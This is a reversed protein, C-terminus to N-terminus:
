PTQEAGVTVTINQQSTDPTSTPAQFQFWLDVYSAPAVNVGNDFLSIDGFVYETATSPSGALITDEVNFLSTGPSDTSDCFLGWIVYTDVGATIGPLWSSGGLTIDLTFTENVSGTNTVTIDDDETSQTIEGAALIGIAWTNPNVSVGLVSPSSMFNPTPYSGGAITSMWQNIATYNGQTFALIYEAQDTGLASSTNYRIRLAEKGTEYWCGVDQFSVPSANPFYIWSIVNNDVPDNDTSDDYIAAYRQQGTLSSFNTWAGQALSNVLDDSGNGIHYRDDEVSSGLSGSIPSFIDLIDDINTDFGFLNYALYDVDETKMQISLDFTTTISAEHYVTDSIEVNTDTSDEIVTWPSGPDSGSIDDEFDETLLQTAGSYIDIDDVYCLPDFHDRDSPGSTWLGTDMEIRSIDTLPDLFSVGTAKPDTMDDIYIDMTDSGCDFVVKFHYWQDPTYTMITNQSGDFYGISGSLFYIDPGVTGSSNELMIDLSDEDTQDRSRAWFELTGSSATAFDARMGCGIANYRTRTDDDDFMCSKGGETEKTVDTKMGLGASSSNEGEPLSFSYFKIDRMDTTTPEGGGQTDDDSIEAFNYSVDTDKQHLYLLSKNTDTRGDYVAVLHKNELVYDDNEDENYDFRYSSVGTQPYLHFYKRINLSPDAVNIDVSYVDPTGGTSDWTNRYYGGGVDTLGITTVPTEDSLKLAATVTAGTVPSGDSVVYAEIYVTDTEGFFVEENSYGSDEYIKGTLNDEYNPTFVLSYGQPAYPVNNGYVEITWNGSIIGTNVVVQEVNNTHDEQTQVASNSPNASDLTWPYYRVSDPDTVVLDLDNVLTPDAGETAPEDDWVLTVKVETTGGPVYLTYTDTAGNGLDDELLSKARLKDISDQIQINGYGYSYDPGTSGLDNAEHILLAKVSSPLPDVASYLSRYDQIILSACGSVAPAAMSTGYWGPGGYEDNPLTSKIYGEGGAEDGPAVVDPKIRGDDMPGWSSFVTMSDDDSNIAGVCIINKATSPPGICDYDGPIDDRENGAAFVVSIRKGYFFGTVIDDYEPADYGYYGYLSSSVGYGWSNQSLEIDYDNIAGDHDTINDDWLYSIIDMAPAMGKWQNATGGKSVSLTGDGGMTGAVHTAHDDNGASDVVTVRAGFDDHTIDVDGGDWIGVDVDLGSLNYPTDQVADAGVNARSGDNLYKKPPREEIIWRVIDENAIDMLKDPSVTVTLRNSVASEEKILAGIGGLVQRAEALSVDKFISVELNVSGDSNVAWPGVGRNLIPLFLKDKPLIPGIWRVNANVLQAQAIGRPVSIFWAKHPIYNLLEVGASNLIGRQAIDPIDYSQMLVHVREHKSPQIHSAIARGIDESPTFRRSKLRIEFQKNSSNVPKSSQAQGQPEAPSAKKPNSENLKRDVRRIEEDQSLSRGTLFLLMMTVLGLFKLFSNIKKDM